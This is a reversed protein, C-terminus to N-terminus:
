GSIFVSVDEPSVSLPYCRVSNKKQLYKIESCITKGNVDFTRHCKSCVNVQFHVRVKLHGLVTMCFFKM